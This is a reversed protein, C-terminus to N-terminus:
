TKELRQINRKPQHTYLPICYDDTLSEFANQKFFQSCIDGTKTMWAVPEQGDAERKIAAVQSVIDCLSPQIAAGKEGNILVDLERTLRRVDDVYTKYAELEDFQDNEAEAIAKMLIKSAKQILFSDNVSHPNIVEFTDLAQKMAEISM